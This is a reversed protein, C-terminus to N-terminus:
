LLSALLLTQFSSDRTRLCACPTCSSPNASASAPPRPLSPLTSPVVAIPDPLPPLTPPWAPSPLVWLIFGQHTGRDIRSSSAHCTKWPSHFSWIQMTSFSREQLLTVQLCSIRHLHGPHDLHSGRPCPSLLLSVPSSLSRLFSSSGTESPEATHPVQGVQPLHQHHSPLSNLSSTSSVPRQLLHAFLPPSREWASFLWHLPLFSSPTTLFLIFVVM